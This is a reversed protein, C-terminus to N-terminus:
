AKKKFIVNKADSRLRPLCKFITELSKPPDGRDCIKFLDCDDSCCM